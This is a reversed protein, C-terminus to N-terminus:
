TVDCGNPLPQYKLFSPIHQFFFICQTHNSSVYSSLFHLCSPGSRPIWMIQFKMQSYIKRLLNAWIRSTSWFLTAQNSLSKQMLQAVYMVVSNVLSM